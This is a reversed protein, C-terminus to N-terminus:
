TRVAGHAGQGTGHRVPEHRRPRSGADSVSPRPRGHGAHGATVQRSLLSRVHGATVSTTPKSRQSRQSGGRRWSPARAAAQRNIIFGCDGGGDGGSGSENSPATAGRLCPRPDPESRAPQHRPPPRDDSDRAPAPSGPGAPRPQCMRAPWLGTGAALQGTLVLQRTWAREDTREHRIHGPASLQSAHAGAHQLKEDFEVRQIEFTGAPLNAIGPKGRRGCITVARGQVAGGATPLGEARVYPSVHHQGISGLKPWGSQLVAGCGLRIGGAVRRSCELLRALWATWGHGNVSVPESQRRDSPHRQSAPVSGARPGPHGM